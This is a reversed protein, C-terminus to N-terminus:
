RVVALARTVVEGTATRIRLFYIGPVYGSVDLTAHTSGKQVPIERVWRGTADFVHISELPCDSFEIHAAHQVPNPYINIESKEGEPEGASVTCNEMLCGESDLKLMWIDQLTSWDYSFGVGAIGGDITGIQHYMYNDIDPNQNYIHEWLLDGESSIKWIRFQVPSFQDATLGGSLIVSGDAPLVPQAFAYSSFGTPYTKEWVVEGAASLKIAYAINVQWNSTGISGIFLGSGDPLSVIKPFGNDHHNTGVKKQWITYGSSDFKYARYQYLASTGYHVAVYFSGDGLMALHQGHQWGSSSVERDWVVNGNLDTKVLWINGAADTRRTQGCFVIHTSDPTLAFNGFFDNKNGTGYTKEWLVNGSTDIKILFADNLETSIEKISGGLLFNGDPLRLMAGFDLYYIFGETYIEKQWVENGFADLWHLLIKNDSYEPGINKSGILYGSNQMELVAVASQYQNNYDYLKSFKAQASIFFPILFVPLLLSHRM